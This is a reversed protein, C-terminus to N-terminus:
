IDDRFRLFVPHRAVIDNEADMQIKVDIKKGILSARDRWFEAKQAATFGMGVKVPEGAETECILAGLLDPREVGSAGGHCTACYPDPEIDDAGIDPAGHMQAHANWFGAREARKEQTMCSPCLGWGHEAGTITVTIDKWPKRKTWARSRKLVYVGDLTKVMAGEFGDAVFAEFAADLEKHTHCIASPVCAFKLGHARNWCQRAIWKVAERRETYPEKGITGADFADFIHVTVERAIRERDVDKVRKLLKSTENWNAAKIECDVHVGPPVISALIEAYPKWTAYTKKNRTYGDGDTFLVRIGDLKPEVAVPCEVREAEYEHALM